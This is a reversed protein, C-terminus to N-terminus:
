ENLSPHNQFFQLMKSYVSRGSYQAEKYFNAPLNVELVYPKNTRADVIVDVGAMYLNAHYIADISLQTIDERMNQHLAIEGHMADTRFDTKPELTKKFYTVVEGNIATVRFVGDSPIFEKLLFETNQAALYDSLSKLSQYSDVIMTGVGGSGGFTKLVMPFGLLDSYKHLLAPNNSGCHITKPTSIGRKELIINLQNPDRYVSTGPFSRYLTLVEENIMACELLRSGRACNYLADQNTLRPLSSFDVSAQDYFTCEIGAVRCVDEIEHLREDLHLSDSKSNYLCHLHKM